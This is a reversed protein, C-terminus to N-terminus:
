NLLGSGLSVLLSVSALFTLTTHQRAGSISLGQELSQTGQRNAQSFVFASLFFLSVPFKHLITKTIATSIKLVCVEPALSIASLARAVFASAASNLDGCDGCGM